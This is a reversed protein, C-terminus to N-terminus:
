QLMLTGELSFLGSLSVPHLLPDGVQCHTCMAQSQFVAFFAVVLSAVDVAALSLRSLAAFVDDDYYHSSTPHTTITTQRRM